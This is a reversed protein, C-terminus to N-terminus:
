QAHLQMPLVSVQLLTLFSTDYFEEVELQPIIKMVCGPQRVTLCHRSNLQHSTILKESRGM